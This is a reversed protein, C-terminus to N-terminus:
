QGNLVCWRQWAEKDQVLRAMEAQVELSLKQVAIDSTGSAENRIMTAVLETLPEGIARRYNFGVVQLITLIEPSLLKNIQAVYQVFNERSDSESSAGFFELVPVLQETIFKIDDESITEALVHESLANAIRQLESREDILENIIDELLGITEKSDKTAKSAKIRDFVAQASNKVGIQALSTLLSSIQPDM